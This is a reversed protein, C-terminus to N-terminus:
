YMKGKVKSLDPNLPGESLLRVFSDVLSPLSLFYSTDSKKVLFILQREGATGSM